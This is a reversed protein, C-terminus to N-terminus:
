FFSVGAFLFVVFEMKGLANLCGSIDSCTTEVKLALLICAFNLFPLVFDSPKKQKPNLFAYVKPKVLTDIQTPM